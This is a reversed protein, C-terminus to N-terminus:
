SGKHLIYFKVFEWIGFIVGVTVPISIGIAVQRFVAAMRDIADNLVKFETHEVKQKLKEEVEGIMRLRDATNQLIHEEIRDMRSRHNNCNVTDGRIICDLKEDISKYREELLTMRINYDSETPPTM